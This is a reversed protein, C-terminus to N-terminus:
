QVQFHVVLEETTAVPKGNKIAPFFRWKKLSDLLLRNLRPNQTPKVLEVTVSGDPAVHFRALAAASFAEDRLEDPITPMPKSVARAGSSPQADAHSDRPEAPAAPAVPTPAPATKAPAPPLANPSPATKPLPAPAIHVPPTPSPRPAAPAARPAAQPTPTAKPQPVPPPPPEEILQADVPALPEPSPPPPQLLGTFAALLLLWFVLAAGLTYPLRRWPNDLRTLSPLAPIALPNALPNALAAGDAQAQLATDGAVGQPLASEPGAARAGPAKRSAQAGPNAHSGSAGRTVQPASATQAAQTAWTAREGPAPNPPLIPKNAM